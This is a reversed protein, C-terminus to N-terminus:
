WHEGRVCKRRTRTNLIEANIWLVTTGLFFLALAIQLLSFPQILYPLGPFLSFLSNISDRSVQSKSHLGVDGSGFAASM